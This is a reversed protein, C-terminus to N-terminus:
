ELQLGSERRRNIRKKKPGFNERKGTAYEKKEASVGQNTKRRIGPNKQSFNKKGLPLIKM